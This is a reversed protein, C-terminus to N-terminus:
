ASPPSGASDSLAAVAYHKGHQRRWFAMGLLGAVGAILGLLSPTSWRPQAEGTADQEVDGEMEELDIPSANSSTPVPPAEAPTTEPTQSAAEASHSPISSQDIAAIAAARDGPADLLAVETTEAAREAGGITTVQRDVSPQTAERAALLLQRDRHLVDEEDAPQWGARIDTLEVHGRRAGSPLPEVPTSRNKHRVPQEAVAAVAPTAPKDQALDAKRQADRLIAKRLQVMFESPRRENPLYTARHSRELQEAVGALRLAEEPHQQKYMKRARAILLDARKRDDIPPQVQKVATTSAASHSVSSTTQTPAQAVVQSITPEQAPAPQQPKPRALSAYGPTSSAAASSTRKAPPAVTSRSAIAPRGTAPQSSRTKAQLAPQRRPTAKSDASNELFPDGSSALTRRKGSRSATRQSASASSKETRRTALSARGPSNDAAPQSAASKAAPTADALNGDRTTAACGVTFLAGAGVCIWSTESVWRRFQPGISFELM